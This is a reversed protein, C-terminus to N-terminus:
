YNVSVERIKMNYVKFNYIFAQTKEAVFFIYDENSNEYIGKCISNELTISSLQSYIFTKALNYSISSLNSDDLFFSCNKFHITTSYAIFDFCMVNEFNSSEFSVNINKLFNKVLTVSKNGIFEFYKVGIYRNTVTFEPPPVLGSIKLLNQFYGISEIVIKTNFINISFEYAQVEILSFEGNELSMNTESVCEFIVNDM